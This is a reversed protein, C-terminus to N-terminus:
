QTDTKHAATAREFMRDVEAPALTSLDITTETRSLKPLVFETLKIWANVREKADLAELDQRIQEANGEVIERVIERLDRNVANPTGPKRGGTKQKGKEFM